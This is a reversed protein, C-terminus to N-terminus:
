DMGALARRHGEQYACNLLDVAEEIMSIPATIERIDDGQYTIACKPFGFLPESIIEYDYPEM